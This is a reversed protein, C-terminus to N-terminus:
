WCGPVRVWTGLQEKRYYWFYGVVVVIQCVLVVWFLVSASPSHDFGARVNQPAFDPFVQQRPVTPRAVIVVVSGLMQPFALTACVHLRPLTQLLIM